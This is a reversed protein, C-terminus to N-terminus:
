APDPVAASPEVRVIRKERDMSLWRTVNPPPLLASWDINALSRVSHPLLLEFRWEDQKSGCCIWAHGCVRPPNEDLLYAGATVGDCWLESFERSSMGKLEACIRFELKSWYEAETMFM